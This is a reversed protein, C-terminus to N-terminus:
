SARAPAGTLERLRAPPGATVKAAELKQDQNLAENLNRDGGLLLHQKIERDRL